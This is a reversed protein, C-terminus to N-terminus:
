KKYSTVVNTFEEISIDKSEAFFHGFPLSPKVLSFIERKYIEAYYYNEGTSKDSYIEILSSARYMGTGMINNRREIFERDKENVYGPAAYDEDSSIYIIAEGNSDFLTITNEASTYTWDPPAKISGKDFFDITQWTDNEYPHCVFFDVVFLSGYTLIFMLFVVGVIALVVRLAAKKM